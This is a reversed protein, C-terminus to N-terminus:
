ESKTIYEITLDDGEKQITVGENPKCKNLPIRQHNTLKCPQEFVMFCRKCMYLKGFCPIMDLHYNLRQENCFTKNCYDCVYSM